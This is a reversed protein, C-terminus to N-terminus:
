CGPYIDQVAWCCNNGGYDPCNTGRRLASCLKEAVAAQEDSTATPDLNISFCSLTPSPTYDAVSHLGQANVWLYQARADNLPVLTTAKVTLLLIAADLVYPAVDELRVAKGLIEVDPIGVLASFDTNASADGIKVKAVGAVGSMDVVPCDTDAILKKTGRPLKTIRLPGTCGTLVVTGAILDDFCQLGETDSPNRVEIDIPYGLQRQRLAIQLAEAFSLESPFGTYFRGAFPVDECGPPM